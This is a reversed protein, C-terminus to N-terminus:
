TSKKWCYTSPPLLSYYFRRECHKSFGPTPNFLLPCASKAEPFCFCVAEKLVSLDGDDSELIMIFMLLIM